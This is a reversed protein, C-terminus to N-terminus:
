IDAEAAFRAITLKNKIESSIIDPMWHITICNLLVLLVYEAMQASILFEQLHKGFHLKLWFVSVFKSSM